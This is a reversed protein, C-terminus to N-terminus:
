MLTLSDNFSPTPLSTPMFSHNLTFTGNFWVIDTALCLGWVWLILAMWPRRRSLPTQNTPYTREAKLRLVWNGKLRQIYFLRLLWSSVACKEAKPANEAVKEKKRKKKQTKYCHPRELMYFRQSSSWSPDPCPSPWAAPSDVQFPLAVWICQSVDGHWPLGQKGRFYQDPGGPLLLHHPRSHLPEPIQVLSLPLRQQCLVPVQLSPSLLLCLSPLLCPLYPDWTAWTNHHLSTIRAKRERPSIWPAGLFTCDGKFINLPGSFQSFFFFSDLTSFHLKYLLPTHSSAQM